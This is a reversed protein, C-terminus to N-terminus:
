HKGTLEKAMVTSVKHFGFPRLKREWGARGFNWIATAGNDIAWSELEPLNSELWEDIGNGALLQIKLVTKGTSKFTEIATICVYVIHNREHGVWLQSDGENICNLLYDATYEGNSYEIASEVLPLVLDWVQSTDDPHIGAIHIM